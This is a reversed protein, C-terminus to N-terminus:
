SGNPCLSSIVMQINAVIIWTASNRVTREHDKTIRRYFNFWAFTREVVWRKAEVVFGKTGEIRSPCEFIVSQDVQKILDNFQGRYAHDGLIKKAREMQDTFNPYVLDKGAIGDHTNASHVEVRWIRGLTDTLISRKRGNVNKGGDIGRDAGIRPDLRVSQADVLLLSPSEEKSHIERREERLLSENMKELTFDKSWKNFYYFVIKYSPFQSDLNRWQSGTRVFWLIADFINRLDHKRKRTTNLYQSVKAWQSDTLRAWQKTM